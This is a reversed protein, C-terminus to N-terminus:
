RRKIYPTPNTKPGSSTTSPKPPSAPPGFVPSTGTKPGSPGSSGGPAGTRVGRGTPSSQQQTAASSPPACPYTGRRDHRHWGQTKGYTGFRCATHSGHTKMVLDGAEPMLDQMARALHRAPAGEAMSAVAVALAATAVVPKWRVRLM